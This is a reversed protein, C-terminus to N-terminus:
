SEEQQRIAKLQKDFARIIQIDTKDSDVLDEWQESLHEVALDYAVRMCDEHLLRDTKSFVELQLKECKEYTLPHTM